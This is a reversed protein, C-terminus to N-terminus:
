KIRKQNKIKKMSEKIKTFFKSLSFGNLKKFEVPEVEIANGRPPFYYRRARDRTRGNKYPQTYFKCRNKESKRREERNM